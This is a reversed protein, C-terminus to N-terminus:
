RQIAEADDRLRGAYAAAVSGIFAGILMSLATFFGIASSAKRAKDAAQRVSTIASDVRQQAVADSVGTQRAAVHALYARDDPTVPGERMLIRAIEGRVVAGDGTMPHDSRLMTDAAYGAVGAANGVANATSSTASLAVAAVIATAVAWTVLGHATDRFFVEHTHVATWRTRLRGTVYGGLAASLWQSVILWIGTWIAFTAASPGTGPWPSAAAFGLGIGLALLILTTGLAVATGAFIAPWSVASQGGGGGTATVAAVDSNIITAM